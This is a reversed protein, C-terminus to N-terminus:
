TIGWKTTLYELVDNVAADPLIAASIVLEGVDFKGPNSGYGTYFQGIQLRAILQTAPINTSRLHIVGFTNMPAQLNGYAYETGNLRYEITPSPPNAFKTTGSTGQLLYLPMDSSPSTGGSQSLLCSTAAFTGERAKAVLFMDWGATGFNIDLTEVYGTTTVSNFRVIPHGNQTAAAYIVDGTGLADSYGSDSTNEWDPSDHGTDDLWYSLEGLTPIIDPLSFVSDGVVRVQKLEVGTSYIKVRMKQYSLEKDAFRVLYYQGNRPSRFVFPEGTVKTHCFLNWLYEERSVTAGSVDTVTNPLVDTHALSNLKLKWSRLGTNAGYLAQSFYGDGLNNELEEFRISEEPEWFSAEALQFLHYTNGSTSTVTTPM